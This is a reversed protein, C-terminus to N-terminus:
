NDDEPLFNYKLNFLTAGKPTLPKYFSSLKKENGFIKNYPSYLNKARMNLSFRTTTESNTINGHLLNPSFIAAQGYKLNLWKLSNINKKFIKNLDSKPNKKIINIMEISKKPTFYFMTNSKHVNVLPLWANVQFLSEGSFFDSHMPLISSSDKPMQISLNVKNQIAIENGILNSLHVQYIKYIKEGIWNDKNLQNYIHLRLTNIKKENIIKHINEIKLATNLKFINKKLIINEIKYKIKNLDEIEAKFIYIGTEIFKDTETKM